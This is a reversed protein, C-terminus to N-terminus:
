VKFQCNPLYKLLLASFSSNLFSNFHEFSHQKGSSDNGNLRPLLLVVVVLLLRAGVTDIFVVVVLLLRAGVTDVVLVIAVLLALITISLAFRSDISMIGVSLSAMLTLSMVLPNVISPVLPACVVVPVCLFGNIVLPAVVRALDVHVEVRDGAVVVLVVTLLLSAYAVLAVLVGRAIDSINDSKTSVRVGVGFSFVRVAVFVLFVVTIAAPRVVQTGPVVTGVIVVEAVLMVVVVSTTNGVISAVGCINLSDSPNPLAVSVEFLELVSVSAVLAILIASESDCGQLVEIVASAVLKSFVLFMTVAVAFVSMAITAVTNTYPALSINWVLLAGITAGDLVTTKTTSKTAIAAILVIAAVGAVSRVISRTAITEVISGTTMTSVIGRTAMTSVKARSAVSRGTARSAVSRGMARSAVSRGTARSAITRGEARMAVPM